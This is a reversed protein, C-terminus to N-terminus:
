FITKLSKIVARAFICIIIAFIVYTIINGIEIPQSPTPTQSTFKEVLQNQNSIIKQMIQNNQAVMKNIKKDQQPAIVKQPQMENILGLIYERCEKCKKLHNILNCKSMCKHFENQPKKEDNLFYSLTPNNPTVDNSSIDSDFNISLNDDQHCDLGNESKKTLYTNSSMLDDSIDSIDSNSNELYDNSM